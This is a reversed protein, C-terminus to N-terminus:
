VVGSPNLTANEEPCVRRHGRNVLPGNRKRVYPYSKKSRAIFYARTGTLCATMEGEASLRIYGASFRGPYERSCNMSSKSSSCLFSIRPHRAFPADLNCISKVSPRRATLISGEPESSLLKM